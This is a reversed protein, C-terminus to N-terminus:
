SVFHSVNTKEGEVPIRIICTTGQNPSSKIELKGGHNQIIKLAIPLGLGAGGSKRSYFPLFIKDLYEKPIGCGNDSIKIEFHKKNVRRTSIKIEGNEKLNAQLANQILNVLAEKMKELDVKILDNKTQYDKVIKFHSASVGALATKLSEELLERASIKRLGNLTLSSQNVQYEGLKKMKETLNNLSDIIRKIWQKQQQDEVAEELMLAPRKISGLSSKIYHAFQSAMLGIEALQKNKQNTQYNIFYQGLFTLFFSFFLFGLLFAWNLLFHQRLFILYNGFVFFCSFALLLGWSFVPKLYVSAFFVFVLLFLLVALNVKDGALTIFTGELINEVVNAHLEVLPYAPSFPISGLDAEGYATNGVIVIKDKFLSLLEEKQQYKKIIELFSYNKYCGYGGAFNIGVEGKTSLPIKKKGLYLNNDEIKLSSLPIDLYKSVIVLDLSPYYKNKYKILLSTNRIIGDKDPFINIHGCSANKLLESHPLIVGKGERFHPFYHFSADISPLLHFFSHEEKLHFVFGMGIAVNEAEQCVKSLLLNSKKIEESPNLFETFVLDFAIVKAQAENLANILLAYLNRDLPWGLKEETEDDITILVIDESGPREGRWKLFYDFSKGKLESFLNLKNLLVFLFFSLLLLFITLYIQKKDLNKV